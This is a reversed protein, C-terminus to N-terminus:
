EAWWSSHEPCQEALCGEISGRLTCTRCRDTDM